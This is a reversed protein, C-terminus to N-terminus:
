QPYVMPLSLQTKGSVTFKVEEFKPKARLAAQNVTAWGELPKGAADVNMDFNGDADHLVTVAYEGDPVPLDLLVDGQGDGSVIAGATQLPLMYDERKQVSVMVSGGRAQLGTIRLQLTEAQAAGATMLAAGVAVLFLKRM